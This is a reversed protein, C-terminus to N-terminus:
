KFIYEHTYDFGKVFLYNDVANDYIKSWEGREYEEESKDLYGKIHETFQTTRQMNVYKRLIHDSIPNMSTTRVIISVGKSKLIDMLALRLLKNYGNGEHSPVTYSDYSIIFSGDIDQVDILLNSLINDMKDVLALMYKTDIYKVVIFNEGCKLNFNFDFFNQMKHYM